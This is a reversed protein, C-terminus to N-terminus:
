KLNSRACVAINRLTLKQPDSNVKLFLFKRWLTYDLDFVVAKPYVAEESTINKKTM